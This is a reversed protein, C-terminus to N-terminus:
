VTGRKHIQCWSRYIRLVFWIIFYLWEMSSQRDWTVWLNFMFRYFNFFVRESKLCEQSVLVPSIRCYICWYCLKAGFCWFEKSFNVFIPSILEIYLCVLNVARFIIPLNWLRIDRFCHSTRIPESLKFLLYTNWRADEWFHAFDFWPFELNKNKFISVWFPNPYDCSSM